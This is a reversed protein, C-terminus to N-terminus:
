PHARPSRARALLHQPSLRPLELGDLANKAFLGLETDGEVLLRRSFFLADPDEKRSALLYFDHASASISLDLRGDGSLSHFGSETVTFHLRLGLDIVHIAIRKGLLPQLDGRSVMRGLALTLLRAFVFSPPMAPLRGLLSALPRPFRRMPLPM